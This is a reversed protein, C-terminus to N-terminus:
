PVLTLAFVKVNQNDPLVLSKVSRSSDLSFTYGYITYPSDDRTGDAQDRYDMAVATSEGENNDSQAWDSLSQTFVRDDGTDYNVTFNQSAQAGNVAMALMELKSYNGPPLPITQGQCTIVNMGDRAPGFNFKVGGWIQASGLFNSSCAFGDGDVGDSSGFTAGDAYIGATNFYPTLSVQDGGANATAAAPAPATSSKSSMSCSSVVAALSLGFAGILFLHPTKM